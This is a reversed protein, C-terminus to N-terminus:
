LIRRRIPGSFPTRFIIGPIPLWSSPRSSTSSRWSARTSPITSEIVGCSRRRGCTISPERRLRIAAPLPVVTSCTLWSSSARLCIAFIIFCSPFPLIGASGPMGCAWFPGACREAVLFRFLLRLFDFDRLYTTQCDLQPQGPDPRLLIGDVADDRRVRAGRAVALEQLDDPAVVRLRIRRRDLEVLLPHAVPERLACLGGRGDGAQQLHLADTSPRSRRTGPAGGRRRAPRPARRPPRARRRCSRRAAHRSPRRRCPSRGGPCSRARAGYRRARRRPAGCRACAAR